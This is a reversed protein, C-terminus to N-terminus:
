GSPKSQLTRRTLAIAGPGGSRCRKVGRHHSSPRWHFRGVAHDPRLRGQGHLGGTEIIGLMESTSPRGALVAGSHLNRATADGPEIELENGDDNAEWIGHCAINPSAMAIANRFYM